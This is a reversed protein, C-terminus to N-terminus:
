EGCSDRSGSSVIRDAAAITTPLEKNICRHCSAVETPVSAKSRAVPTSHRNTSARHKEGDDLNGRKKESLCQHIASTSHGSAHGSTELLFPPLM